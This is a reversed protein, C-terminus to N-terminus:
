RAKLTQPLGAVVWTVEDALEAVAQHLWGAEDVFRRSLEGLPVIGQSVENSVLLWNGQSRQLADLFAQRQQPWDETNETLWNSLWLTLCDVLVTVGNQDFEHIAAALELPIEYTHFRGNRGSQHHAIRAQMETDGARATALYILPDAQTLASREAFRSKGSRAGGLIFHVTM